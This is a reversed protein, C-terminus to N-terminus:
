NPPTLPPAPTTASAKPRGDWPGFQFRKIIGEAQNRFAVHDNRVTMSQLQFCENRKSLVLYYDIYIRQVSKGPESAGAAKVGLEKRYVKLPAWDADPLWSDPGKLLEFKKKAWFADIDRRFRDVDRFNRDGQPDEAGPPLRIIVVDKRDPRQDVLHIEDPDIPDGGRPLQLEQPHLFHFRGLDDDYVLWSNAEDPTPVSDPITVSANPGGTAENPAAGLRRELNLEYTGTQKLRGEDDALTNSATWAM